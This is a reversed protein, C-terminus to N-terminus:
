NAHLSKLSSMNEKKKKKWHIRFLLFPPDYPLSPYINIKWVMKWLPLIGFPFGFKANGNAHSIWIRRMRVIRAKDNKEIEAMGSSTYSIENKFFKTKHHNIINLM